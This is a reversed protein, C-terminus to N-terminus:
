NANIYNKIFELPFFDREDQVSNWHGETAGWSLIM